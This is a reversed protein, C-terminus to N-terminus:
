VSCITPLTLHTYSVSVIIILFSLFMVLMRDKEVSTLPKNMLDKDPSKESGIFEGVGELYKLGYIYVLQGIAMGIGALGFGYHWGYKAAVAGVTLAGLFAGINIGMYFIYFGTDRNNDGKKYLGGVMTSINPKLFGVGVVILILGTFFAWEADVALIGHGFCLLLGGLMVAKKQGIFKDAVWGGPISMLYVFMTYTGYFSLTEANTWGYGSQPDDMIIPAALFLTLIARMGYYSFREWMEVFFLIYLGAPHGFITKEQTLSNTTM